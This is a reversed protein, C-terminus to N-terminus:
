FVGINCDEKQVCTYIPRRLWLLALYVKVLQPKAHTEICILDCLIMKKVNCGLSKVNM